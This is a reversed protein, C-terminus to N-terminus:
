CEQNIAESAETIDAYNVEDQVWDYENGHLRICETCKLLLDIYYQYQEITLKVALASALEKMIKLVELRLYELIQDRVGRILSSILDKFQQIFKNLDFNPSQGVIKLNMMLLIYVKPSMIVMVIVYVLKTLIQDILGINAKWDGSFGSSVDFGFMTNLNSSTDISGADHPNTSSVAQYISGKIVDQLEEKSADSSLANISSMISEPSPITNANVGDNTQLGVRNMEVEQLLANYSDNTFSFFCDSIVSDDTEIIKTVLERLQAQVFQQQFSININGNINAGVNGSFSGGVASGCYKLCNTIADLLQAVITKEDFLKMSMVFDTNFEIMLRRFYYNSEPPPYGTESEQELNNLANIKNSEETVMNTSMLSSPIVIERDINPYSFAAVGGLSDGITQGEVNYIARKINELEAKYTEGDNIFSNLISSDAEGNEIAETTSKRVWMDIEDKYTDVTESLNTLSKINATSQAVVQRYMDKNNVPATCGFFVHICNEIPEQVYLQNRECDTLSSSRNNYEITVIGNSKPQKTWHEVGDITTHSINYPTNAERDKKRKWVVRGSPTNKCYWLVANFDESYKVDDLIQVKPSDCDFYYYKGANNNDKLLPSYSFINFLDIKNMDFVVGELIMQRTIIPKISCSLITQINSLLIGKVAVELVPLQTAIFRSLIDVLVDYGKTEKFFDVLLDIPNASINASIRTTTGSTEPYMELATMIGSVKAMAQEKVQQATAM